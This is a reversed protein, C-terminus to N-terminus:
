GRYALRGISITSQTNRTALRLLSHIAIQAAEGWEEECAYANRNQLMHFSSLFGSVISGERHIDLGLVALDEM